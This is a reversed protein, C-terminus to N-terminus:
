IKLTLVPSIINGFVNIQKWSISYLTVFGGGGAREIKLLLM